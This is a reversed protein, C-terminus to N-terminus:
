NELALVAWRTHTHLCLVMSLTHTFMQDAAASRRTLVVTSWELGGKAGRPRAHKQPECLTILNLKLLVSHTVNAMSHAYVDPRRRGLEELVVTDWSRAVLM